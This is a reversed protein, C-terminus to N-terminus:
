KAAQKSALGEMLAVVPDMARGDFYDTWSVIKGDKITFVACVPNLYDKGAITQYDMRQIVVGGKDDAITRLIETRFSMPVILVNEKFFPELFAQMEAKTTMVGKPGLPPINEYRVPDGVYSMIKDVDHGSWAEMFGHVVKINDEPTDAARALPAAILSLAFAVAFCLRKPM